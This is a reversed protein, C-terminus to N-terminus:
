RIKRIYQIATGIIEGKNRQNIVAGPYDENLPVLEIGEVGRDRYKRFLASVQGDIAALVYKGPAPRTDPDIIIKDGPLFEPAMSEDTIIVAFANKNIDMDVGIKNFGSFDPNNTILAKWQVAQVFDLVPIHRSLPRAIAVSQYEAKVDSVRHIVEPLPEYGRLQAINLGYYKAWPLITEDAPNKTEGNLVRTVASQYTGTAKAFANHSGRILPDNEILFKLIEKIGPKNM